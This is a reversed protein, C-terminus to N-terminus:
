DQDPAGAVYDSELAARLQRRDNHLGYLRSSFCHVITMLDQAVEQQQSLREQNLM